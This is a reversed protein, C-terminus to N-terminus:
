TDAQPTASGSLVMAADSFSRALEIGRNSIIVELLTPDYLSDRMKLVSIARKLQARYEVFRMLFLNDVMSSLEPAPAKIESGFLDRMEWSVLVTVGRARLENMLASFFEVM